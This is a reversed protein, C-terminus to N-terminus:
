ASVEAAHPPAIAMASIGAYTLARGPSEALNQNKSIVLPPPAQSHQAAPITPITSSAGHIVSPMAWSSSAIARDSSPGLASATWAAWTVSARTSGSPAGDVAGLGLAPPDLAVQVVAGLLAEHRQGGVQTRGALLEVVVLGLLAM